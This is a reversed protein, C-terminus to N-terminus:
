SFAGKIGGGEEKRKEGHFETDETTFEEIKM